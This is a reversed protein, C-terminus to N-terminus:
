TPIAGCPTPIAEGGGHCWHGCWRDCGCWGFICGIFTAGLAGAAAAGVAPAAVGALLSLWLMGGLMGEQSRTKTESGDWDQPGPVLKCDKTNQPLEAKSWEARHKSGAGAIAGNVAKTTSPMVFDDPIPIKKAEFIKLLKEAKNGQQSLKLQVLQANAQVVTLETIAKQAAILDSNRPFSAAQAPRSPPPAPRVPSFAMTPNQENLRQNIKNCQEELDEGDDSSDDLLSFEDAAEGVERELREVLSECEADAEDDSIADVDMTGPLLNRFEPCMCDADEHGESYDPDRRQGEINPVNPDGDDSNYGLPDAGAAHVSPPSNITFSGVSGGTGINSGATARPMPLEEFGQLQDDAM